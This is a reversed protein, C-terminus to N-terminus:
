ASRAFEGYYYRAATAYAAGAAQVSKFRGLHIHKRAVNIRAIWVPALHLFRKDQKFYVGKFGSTNAKNRRVNAGNQSHSAERLNRIRNNQESLDRHDLGRKPWKGHVYFWALRHAKYIKGDIGIRIYRDKSSGATKGVTCGPKQKWVFIGTRPDYSLVEKLRKLTLCPKSM